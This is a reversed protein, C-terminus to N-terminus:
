FHRGHVRAMFVNGPRVVGSLDGCKSALNEIECGAFAVHCLEYTKLRIQRDTLLARVKSIRSMNLENKTPMFTELIILDLEYLTTPDLDLDCSVVIISDVLTAPKDLCTALYPSPRLTASQRADPSASRHHRAYLPPGVTASRPHTFSPPLSLPPVSHRVM